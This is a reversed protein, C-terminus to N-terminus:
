QKARKKIREAVFHALGAGIVTDIIGKYDSFRAAPNDYPSIPEILTQWTIESIASLGFGFYASKEKAGLLEASYKGVFYPIAGILGIHMLHNSGPFASAGKYIFEYGKKILHEISM